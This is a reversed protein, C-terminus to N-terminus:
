LWVHLLYEAAIEKPDESLYPPLRLICRYRKIRRMCVTGVKIPTVTIENTAMYRM